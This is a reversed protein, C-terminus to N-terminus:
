FVSNDHRPDEEVPLASSTFPAFFCTAQRSWSTREGDRANPTLRLGCANRREHMKSRRVGQTPEDSASPTRLRRPRTYIVTQMPGPDSGPRM